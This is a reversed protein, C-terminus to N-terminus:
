IHSACAMRRRGRLMRWTTLTGEEGPVNEPASSSDPKLHAASLYPEHFALRVDIHLQVDSNPTVGYDYEGRGFIRFCRTSTEKYHDQAALADAPLMPPLPEKVMKVFHKLRTDSLAWTNEGRLRALLKPRGIAPNNSLALRVADLLQKDSPTTFGPVTSM